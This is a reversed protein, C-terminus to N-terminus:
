GSLLESECDVLHLIFTPSSPEGGRLFRTRGSAELVAAISLVSRLLLSGREIPLAWKFLEGSYIDHLIDDVVVDVVGGALIMVLSEVISPSHMFLELTAAIPRQERSHPLAVM